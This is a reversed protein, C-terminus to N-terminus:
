GAYRMTRRETTEDAESHIRLIPQVPSRRERVIGRKVGQLFEFYAAAVGSPFETRLRDLMENWSLGSRYIVRYAAKLHIMDSESFGSRRLGVRNLGVVHHSIGDVIVFPPVDQSVHSQGGVMALQGIRCFQHVGAAGSVYVRNEITVHGAIMVNNALIVHSGVHCDHGIHANVMILNNDGVITLDGQTLGCHITANERIMNGSGIRLGGVQQGARLHQPKGGLVAGESVRNGCGLHTSKKVVVRSALECGSEIVVDEEVVCFPGVIADSAIEARRDVVATPHINSV